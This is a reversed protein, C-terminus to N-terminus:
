NITLSGNLGFWVDLLLYLVVGINPAYRYVLFMKLAFEENSYINSEPKDLQMGHLKKNYVDLGKLYDDKLSWLVNAPFHQYCFPLMYGKIALIPLISLISLFYLPSLYFGFKSIFIFIHVLAAILILFNGLSYKKTQILYGNLEYNEKETMLEDLLKKRHLKMSIEREPSKLTCYPRYKITFYVGMLMLLGTFIYVLMVLEAM